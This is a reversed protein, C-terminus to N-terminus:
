RPQLRVPMKSFGRLVVSGTRVPEGAPEVVRTAALLESLVAAMEMRAMRAGLCYHPGGGFSLHDNPIRDLRFRDPEEFKREDRNASGFMVLVRAGAPITQGHLEVDRTTGRWLAQVSTDYRIGEEVADPVLDPQRRLRAGLEPLRMLAALLNTLMNSTTEIGAVLLFACFALMEAETIGATGARGIVDFLNPPEAPEPRRLSRSFFRFMEIGRGIGDAGSGAQSLDSTIVASWQRFDDHMEDPVGLLDALVLTPVPEAVDAFFDAQGSENRQLLVRIQKRAIRVIRSRLTALVAPTFAGAVAHRFVQHDPADTAILVRVNPAGIRYGVGSDPIVKRGGFDPSMGIKSSYTRPDRIIAAVDAYRSVAWVEHAPLYLVPAERRLREYAPYPDEAIAPDVPDFLAADEVSARTM